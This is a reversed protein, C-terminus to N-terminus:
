QEEGAESKHCSSKREKQCAKDCKERCDEDEHERVLAYLLFFSFFGVSIAIGALLPAYSFYM